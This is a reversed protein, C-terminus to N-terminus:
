WLVLVFRSGGVAGAVALLVTGVAFRAATGVDGDGATRVAEVALSSFTTFAGCFGVGAVLVFTPGVPAALVAGLAVSGVVDVAVLSWRGTLRLGVAHRCVAGAAGGGGVALAQFLPTLSM